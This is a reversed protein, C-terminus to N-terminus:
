FLTGQKEDPEPKRKAAEASQPSRAGATVPEILDPTDNAARNVAPSVEHMDLWEDRAPAILAAATDADVKAGDLWFDFADPPVIAPMRDHIAALTRNAWTTVIAATEMEEGNPGMWTEWLGAFAMPGGSRLRVYYPTRREGARRWEYFGDAPFLCRRRRMANRFAPKDNLAEGRANILLAFSRPDKVWSPILGWRVLAFRRRGEDLRVIPVPQTPAINYRPPFNPQEAYGFLRRIAEPASTIAYRGCM